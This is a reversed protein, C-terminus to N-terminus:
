ISYVRYLLLLLLLIIIYIFLHKGTSIKGIPGISLERFNVEM